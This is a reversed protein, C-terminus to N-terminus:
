RGKLAHITEEQKHHVHLPPGGKPAVEVIFYDFAGGTDEGTVQLQQDTNRVPVAIAPAILPEHELRIADHDDLTAKEEGFAALLLEIQTDPDIKREVAHNLASQGSWSVELPHAPWISDAFTVFAAVDRPLRQVKL